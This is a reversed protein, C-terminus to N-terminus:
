DIYGIFHLMGVVAQGLDKRIRKTQALRSIEVTIPQRNELVGSAAGRGM